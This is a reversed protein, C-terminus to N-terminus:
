FFFEAEVCLSKKIKIQSPVAQILRLTKVYSCWQAQQWVGRPILQNALLRKVWNKFKLIHKTTEFTVRTENYKTTAPWNFQSQLRVSLVTATKQWLYIFEQPNRWETHEKKWTEHNEGQRWYLDRIPNEIDSNNWYFLIASSVHHRRMEWTRRISLDSCCQSILFHPEFTREPFLEQNISLCVSPSATTQVTSPPQTGIWENLHASTAYMESFQLFFCSELQLRTLLVYQEENTFTM